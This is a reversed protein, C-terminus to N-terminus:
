KQSCQRATILNAKRAALVKFLVPHCAALVPIVRKNFPFTTKRLTIHNVDGIFRSLMTGSVNM